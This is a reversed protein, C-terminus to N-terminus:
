GRGQAARLRAAVIPALRRADDARGPVTLEVVARGAMILVRDQGGALSEDAVLYGGPIRRPPESLSGLGALDDALLGAAQGATAAVWSDSLVVAPDRAQPGVYVCTVPKAWTVGPIRITKPSSVYGPSIVRLDRPTLLACADPWQRATVGGLASPGASDAPEPRYATIRTGAPSNGQAFLLGAATGVVTTSEFASTDLPLVSSRGTAVQVAVVFGPLLGVPQGASAFLTGATDVAMPSGVGILTGARQWTVRGTALDIGQTAAGNEGLAVVGHRGLSGMTCSGAPCAIQSRSRTAILRGGPSFIRTSTGAEALIDGTDSTALDAPYVERRSVALIRQWGVRGTGPNVSLLRVGRVRGGTCQLLFLAATATTATDGDPCGAPLRTTWTPRGDSLRLGRLAGSVGLQVVIGRSTMLVPRLMLDSDPGLRVALDTRWLPGGSGRLRYAAFRVVTQQPTVMAAYLRGGSVAIATFSWGADPTIDRETRGSRTARVALEGGPAPLVVAADTVSFLTATVGKYVYDDSLGASDAPLGASWVPVLHGPPAQSAAPSSGCGGAGAALGAIALVAAAARRLGARRVGAGRWDAARM